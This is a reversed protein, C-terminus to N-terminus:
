PVLELPLFDYGAETLENGWEELLFRYIQKFIDRPNRINWEYPLRWDNEEDGEKRFVIAFDTKPNLLKDKLMNVLVVKHQVTLGGNDNPFFFEDLLVKLQAPDNPDFENLYEELEERDYLYGFTLLFYGIGVTSFDMNSRPYFLM